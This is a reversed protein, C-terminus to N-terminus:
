LDRYVSNIIEGYIYKKKIQHVTSIIAYNDYIVKSYRAFFIIKINSKVLIKLLSSTVSNPFEFHLM